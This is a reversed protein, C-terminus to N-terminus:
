GVSRMSGKHGSEHRLRMQSPASLHLWHSLPNAKLLAPSLHSVQPGLQASQSVGPTHVDQSSEVSADVTRMLPRQSGQGSLQLAHVSM